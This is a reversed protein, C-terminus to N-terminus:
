RLTEVPDLAAARRAPAIGALVGAAVAAGMGALAVTWPMGGISSGQLTLTALILRAAALALMGGLATTLGAEVLFQLRIDRSRAGIAKRLGIEWRRENVTMLMLIAVVLGGIAISVTALLPLVVTFVRNTSRVMQRAQVPTFMAFDDEQGPGIGHRRRLVDGIELVALDLDADPVLAFKAGGIWDVNRVRRMMTSVPILVENDKDIGHPDLGIRELVGLVQFPIGEIRIQSGVPDDRGFLDRAAVEGILAVRASRAVDDATFYAGRTVSRNWVIESAESYGTVPIRSSRGEHVVDLSGAVVMPDALVISGVEDRIADLDALTLTTAPGETHAGGVTRNGGARLFITSGGLMRDLKALVDGQAGRGMALTVTLATVGVFTGLMMFVTRLRNRGLTRLSGAVIRAQRTV